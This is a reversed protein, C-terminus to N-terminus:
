ARAEADLGYRRLAAAFAEAVRPRHDPAHLKLRHRSLDVGPSRGLRVRLRLGLVLRASAELLPAPGLELLSELWRPAGAAALDRCRAPYLSLFNPHRSMLARNAEVFSRYTAEGALPRLGVIEAATFLDQEPVKLHGEDVIYNLCLTRRVGLAKALLMLALAVFWARGRKVVLFVDVDEDSANQWACAGSLAVLRVFPFRALGGLLRGHRALLERSHRRRARRLAVWDERGRLHLLGATLRLRERLFPGRLRAALARRSLPVDLLSRHLESLTQPAQFLSAYVLTRLIARDALSAREGPGACFRPELVAAM